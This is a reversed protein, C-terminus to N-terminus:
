STTTSCAFRCPSSPAPCPLGEDDLTVARAACPVAAAARVCGRVLVAAMAAPAIAPSTGHSRLKRCRRGGRTGSVSCTQSQWLDRRFAAAHLRLPSASDACRDRSASGSPAHVGRLARAGRRRGPPRASRPTSARDREPPSAARACPPPAIGHAGAVPRAARMCRRAGRREGPTARCSVSRTVSARRPWAPSRRAPGLRADVVVRPAVGRARRGRDSRRGSRRGRTSRSGHLRGAGRTRCRRLDHSQVKTEIRM